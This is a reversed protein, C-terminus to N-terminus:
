NSIERIKIIMTNHQKRTGDNSTADRENVRLGNRLRLPYLKPTTLM